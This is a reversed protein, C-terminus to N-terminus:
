GQAAIARLQERLHAPPAAGPSGVRSSYTRWDGLVEVALDHRSIAFVREGPRGVAEGPLEHVGGEARLREYHPYPCQIVSEVRPDFDETTASM